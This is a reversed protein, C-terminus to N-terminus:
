LNEDKIHELPQALKQRLSISAEIARDIREAVLMSPVSRGRIINNIHQRAVGSHRSIESMNLRFAQISVTWRVLTAKYDIENPM